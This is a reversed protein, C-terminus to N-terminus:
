LKCNQLQFKINLHFIVLEMDLIKEEDHEDISDVYIFSIVTKYAPHPTTFSLVPKKSVHRWRRSRRNKDGECEDCLRDISSISVMAFKCVKKRYIYIGWMCVHMCVYMYIIVSTSTMRLAQTFGTRMCAAIREKMVPPHTLNQTSMGVPLQM